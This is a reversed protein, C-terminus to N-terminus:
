EGGQGGTVLSYSNSGVNSRNGTEGQKDKGNNAKLILANDCDIFIPYEAGNNATGRGRKINFVM